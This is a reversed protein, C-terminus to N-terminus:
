TFLPTSFIFYTLKGLEHILLLASRTHSHVVNSGNLTFDLIDYVSTYICLTSMYMFNVYVYLQCVYLQCICLTSMCLNSMYMFNVYVYLQCICLTSMYMFNVHNYNTNM